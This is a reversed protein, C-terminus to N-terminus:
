MYSFSLLLKSLMEKRTVTSLVENMKDCCTQVDKNNRRIQHFLAENHTNLGKEFFGYTFIIYVISSVYKLVANANTLRM